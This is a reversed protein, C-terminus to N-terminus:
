ADDTLPDAPRLQNLLHDAVPTFGACAAADREVLTLLPGTTGEERFVMVYQFGFDDRIQAHGLYQVVLDSDNTCYFDGSRLRHQAIWSPTSTSTM